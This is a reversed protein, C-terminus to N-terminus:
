RSCLTLFYSLAFAYAPVTGYIKRWNSFQLWQKDKLQFANGVFPYGPPGPPLKRWPSRLYRAILLLVICAFFGFFFTPNEQAAYKVNKLSFLM